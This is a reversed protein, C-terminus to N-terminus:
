PDIEDVQKHVAKISSPGLLAFLQMVQSDKKASKPDAGKFTARLINTTVSGQVQFGFLQSGETIFYRM